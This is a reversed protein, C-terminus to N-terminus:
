AVKEALPVDPPQRLKASFVLAERVTAQPLHTDTQQCYGSCLTGM